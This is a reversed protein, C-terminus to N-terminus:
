KIGTNAPHEVKLLTLSFPDYSKLFILGLFNIKYLLALKNSVGM